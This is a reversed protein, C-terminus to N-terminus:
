SENNDRNNFNQIAPMPTLQKQFETPTSTRTYVFAMIEVLECKCDGEPEVSVGNSINVSLVSPEGEDDPYTTKIYTKNGIKFTNGIEIDRYNKFNPRKEQITIGM